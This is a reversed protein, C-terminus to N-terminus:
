FTHEHVDFLLFRAESLTFFVKSRTKSSFSYEIDAMMTIDQRAQLIGDPTKPRDNERILERAM